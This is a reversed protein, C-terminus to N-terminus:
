VCPLCNNHEDGDESTWCRTQVSPVFFTREAELYAETISGKPCAQQKINKKLQDFFRVFYYQTIRKLSQM